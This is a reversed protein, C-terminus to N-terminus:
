QVRKKWQKLEKQVGTFSPAGVVSGRAQMARKVRAVPSGEFIEEAVRGMGPALSEWVQRSLRDIRTGSEEAQRVAAGVVQHAKRFPLGARVLADAVDTALLEPASVAYLCAAGDVELSAVAHATVSVKLPQGAKGAVTFVDVDRQGNILGNVRQGAELTMASSFGNNPEKEEQLQAPPVVQLLVPATPRGGVLVSLSMPGLPFDAALGLDLIVESEGLPDKEMGTPTGADKKEKMGIKDPPTSGDVRIETAEKLNVGRMRVTGSFGQPVSLPVLATVKPVPEPKDEALSCPAALVLCSLALGCIQTSRMVPFLFPIWAKM